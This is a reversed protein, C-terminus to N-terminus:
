WVWLTIHGCCSTLITWINSMLWNQRLINERQSDEWLWWIWILDIQVLYDTYNLQLLNKHWRRPCILKVAFSCSWLLWFEMAGAELDVLSLILRGWSASQFPSDSIRQSILNIVYKTMKWALHPPFFFFFSWNQRKAWIIVVFAIMQSRCMWLGVLVFFTSCVRKGKLVSYVM